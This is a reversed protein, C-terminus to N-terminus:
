YIRIFDVFCSDQGRICGINAPVNGKSASFRKNKINCSLYQYDTHYVIKIGVRIRILKLFRRKKLNFSGSRAALFATKLTL